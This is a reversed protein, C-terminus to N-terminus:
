AIEGKKGKEYMYLTYNTFCCYPSILPTGLYIEANSNHLTFDDVCVVNWIITFQAIHKTKDISLHNQKNQTLWM